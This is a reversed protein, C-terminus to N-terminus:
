EVTFLAREVARRFFQATLAKILDLRGVINDLEGLTSERAFADQQLNLKVWGALCARIGVLGGSAM